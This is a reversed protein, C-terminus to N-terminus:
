SRAYCRLVRVRDAEGALAIYFNGAKLEFLAPLLQAYDVDHVPDLWAADAAGAGLADLLARPRPISGILETPILM